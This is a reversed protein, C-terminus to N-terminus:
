NICSIKRICYTQFYLIGDTDAVNATSVQFGAFEKIQLHHDFHFAMHNNILCNIHSPSINPMFFNLVEQPANLGNTLVINVHRQQSDMNLTDTHKFIDDFAMQRAVTNNENHVAANKIRRLEYVFYVDKFEEKEKGLKTLLPIM